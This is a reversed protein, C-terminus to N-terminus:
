NIIDLRSLIFQRLLALAKRPQYEPVEHGAGYALTYTLGRETVTLGSIGNKEGDSWPKLPLNKKFGREGLWETAQLAAETLYHDVVSDRNGSYVVVKIGGKILGDFLVHSSAVNDNFNPIINLCISFIGDKLTKAHIAKRAAPDNLVKDTTAELDFCSRDDWDYPNFCSINNLLANVPDYVSPYTQNYPDYGNCFYSDDLTAFNPNDLPLIKGNYHPSSIFDNESTVTLNCFELNKIYQERNAANPGNKGWLGFDDYLTLFGLWSAYAIVPNGIAIGQLNILENKKAHINQQRIHDAMYPIYMGAYSEGTLHLNKSRLEPFTNLFIQLFGYFDKGVDLENYVSSGNGFSLGVSLPQDVYVIHGLHHWSYPNPEYAGTKNSYTWPGNEEFLGAMSSCGPGGNFWFILEDSPKPPKFYWFFLELDPTSENIPLNGAYSVPYHGNVGPLSYCGVAESLDTFIGLGAALQTASVFLVSISTISLFSAKM